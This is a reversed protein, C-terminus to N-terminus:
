YLHCCPCTQSYIFEVICLKLTKLRTQKTKNKEEIADLCSNASLSIYTVRVPFFKLQLHPLFYINHLLDRCQWITYTLDPRFQLSLITCIGNCGFFQCNSPRSFKLNIFNIYLYQRFSKRRTKFM